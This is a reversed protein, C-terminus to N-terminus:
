EGLLVKKKAIMDQAQAVGETTATGTLINAARGRKKKSEEYAERAAKKAAENPDPVPPPPPPPPPKPAHGGIGLFGGM